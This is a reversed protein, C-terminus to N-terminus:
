KRKDIAEVVEKLTKGFYVRQGNKLVVTIATEISLYITVHKDIKTLNNWCFDGDVDQLIFQRGDDCVCIYINDAKYDLEELVVDVVENGCVKLM